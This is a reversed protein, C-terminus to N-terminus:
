FVFVVFCDSFRMVDKAKHDHERLEEFEKDVRGAQAAARSVWYPPIEGM